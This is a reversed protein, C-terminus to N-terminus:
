HRGGSNNTSHSPARVTPQVNRDAPVPRSVAPTRPQGHNQTAIQGRNSQYSQAHQVQTSMRPATPEHWAAGESPQPRAQVGTRWPLQRSLGNAVRVNARYSYVNHM